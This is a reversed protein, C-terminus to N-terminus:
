VESDDTSRQFTSSPVGACELAHWLKGSHRGVGPGAMACRPAALGQLAQWPGDPAWPGALARGLGQGPKGFVQCPGAVPGASAGVSAKCRCPTLRTWWATRIGHCMCVSLVSMCVFPAIM